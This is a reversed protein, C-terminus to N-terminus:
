ANKRRRLGILLLGCAFLLAGGTVGRNADASIQSCGSDSSSSSPQDEGEAELTMTTTAVENVKGSIADEFVTEATIEIEYTGKMDPVFSPRQDLEFNYEYPTSKAVTGSANKLNATSGEPASVIRYSYHMAQNERNAFLRIKVDEGTNALLSPTHIKFLATPDLCNDKDGFVVFCFRQDCADGFEDRDGDLQMPNAFQQCNDLRDLVNDNDDDTDCADGLLDGDFDKQDPDFDAPCLDSLDGIGDQDLDPFCLASQDETPNQIESSMPCADTANDVGDGDIDPDCADGIGNGDLDPQAGGTAANPISRCNDIDNAIDDGDLDLDCADGLEDGDINLQTRNPAVACNDCADGYGDGDNDSQDTNAVRICNDYADDLGDDDWDDAYQYSDGADTNAILISGGGGGGGGGGSQDPTGCDNFRGDCEIPPSDQASATNLGAVLIASMCVIGFVNKM